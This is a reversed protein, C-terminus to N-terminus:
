YLIASLLLSSAAGIPKLPVASFPLPIFTEVVVFNPEAAAGMLRGFTTTAEAAGELFSDSIGTTGRFAVLTRNAGLLGATGEAEALAAAALAEEAKKQAKKAAKAM